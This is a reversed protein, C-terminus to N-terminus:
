SQKHAPTQRDILDVRRQHRGGEFETDLFADAIAKALDVGIIREGMCLVNADNHMRSMRAMYENACLAARIGEFRNATISVGIGSGCILIGTAELNLVEEALKGAINPYDCSELSHTGVDITKFRGALHEMLINKLGFGAHDSGFVITRM